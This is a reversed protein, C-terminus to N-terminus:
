PVIPSYSGARPGNESAGANGTDLDTALHRTEYAYSNNLRAAGM